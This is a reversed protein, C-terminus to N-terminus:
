GGNGANTIATLDQLGHQYILLLDVRYFPGCSLHLRRGEYHEYLRQNVNTSENQIRRSSGHMKATNFLGSPVPFSRTPTTGPQMSVKAMGYMSRM